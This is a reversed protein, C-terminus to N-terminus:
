YSLINNLSDDRTDEWWTLGSQGGWGEIEIEIGIKANPLVLRGSPRPLTFVPKGLANGLKM